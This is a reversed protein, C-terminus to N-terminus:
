PIAGCCLRCPVAHVQPPSEAANAREASRIPGDSSADDAGRVLRREAADRRYRHQRETVFATTIHPSIM